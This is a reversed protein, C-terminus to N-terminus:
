AAPSKYEEVIKRLRVATARHIFRCAYEVSTPDIPRKRLFLEVVKWNGNEAALQVADRCTEETFTFLGLLAEVIECRDAFITDRSGGTGGHFEINNAGGSSDRTFQVGRAADILLRAGLHKAIFEVQCLATTTQVFNYKVAIQAIPELFDVVDRDVEGELALDNKQNNLTTHAFLAIVTAAILADCEEGAAWLTRRLVERRVEASADMITVLIEVSPAVWHSAAILLVETLEEPSFFEPNQLPLTEPNPYTELIADLVELAGAKLSAIVGKKLHALSLSEKYRQLLLEITALHNGSAAAEFAEPIIAVLHEAIPPVSSSSSTPLLSSLSIIPRQDRPPPAPPSFILCRCESESSFKLSHSIGGNLMQVVRSVDGYSAFVLLAKSREEATVLASTAVIDALDNLKYRALESLRTALADKNEEVDALLADYSRLSPKVIVTLRELHEKAFRFYHDRLGLAVYCDRRDRPATIPVYSAIVDFVVDLPHPVMLDFASRAPGSLRQATSTASAAAANEYSFTLTSTSTAAATVTAM